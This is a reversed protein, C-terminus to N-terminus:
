GEVKGTVEERITKYSERAKIRELRGVYVAEEEATLTTPKVWGRAEWDTILADAIENARKAVDASDMLALKARGTSDEGDPKGVVMACHMVIREAMQGRLSVIYGAAIRGYELGFFDM